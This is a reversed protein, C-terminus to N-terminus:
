PGEIPGTIPERVAMEDLHKLELTNDLVGPLRLRLTDLLHLGDDCLSILLHARFDRRAVLAALALEFADGVVATRYLLYEEFQDLIMIMPREPNRRAARVAADLWTVLTFAMHWREYIVLKARVGLRALAASLGANLVSSKGVGNRGYLVTIPRTLVNDAIVRSDLARGFFYRADRRTFPDLGVYACDDSM